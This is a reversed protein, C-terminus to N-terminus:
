PRWPLSRSRISTSAGSFPALPPVNIFTINVWVSKSLDMDGFKVALSPLRVDLLSESLIALYFQHGHLLVVGEHLVFVVGRSNRGDLGRVLSLEHVPFIQPHYLRTHVRKERNQSMVSSEPTERKIAKTKSASNWVKQRNKHDKQM